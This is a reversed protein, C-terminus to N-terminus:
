LYTDVQKEIVSIEEDTLERGLLNSLAKISAGIAVRRVDIEEQKAPPPNGPTFRSSPLGPSLTAALEDLLSEDEAVPEDFRQPLFATPEAFQGPNSMSNEREERRRKAEEKRACYQAHAKAVTEEVESLEAVHSELFIFKDPAYKKAIEILDHQNAILAQLAPFVKIPVRSLEKDYEFGSATLTFEQKNKRALTVSGKITNSLNDHM